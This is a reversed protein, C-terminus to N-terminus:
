SRHLPYSLSLLHLSCLQPRVLLENKLLVSSYYEVINPHKCFTLFNMENLNHKKEKPTVHPLRKIAVKGQASQRHPFALSHRKM